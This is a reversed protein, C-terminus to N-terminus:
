YRLLAAISRQGPLRVRDVLHVTGRHLLTEAAALDLLDADGTERSAHVEVTRTDPQVVGWQQAAADILLVDVRGDIAATVVAGVDDATRRTGALEAYRDAARERKRQLIPEMLPYVQERIQYPTLHDCNGELQPEVLEPYSCISRFIPLEYGVGTLLLPAPAAALVPEVAEDVLRLFQSIDDKRTDWEGGQGHFVVGQKGLGGSGRMAPHVQSGRDVSTYNLSDIMNEPMGPVDVQRIHFRSTEFLRVDNQSLALVYFNRSGELLPLLPRIYFRDQVV